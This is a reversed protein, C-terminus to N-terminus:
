VLMVCKVQEHSYRPDPKTLREEHTLYKSYTSEYVMDVLSSTDYEMHAVPLDQPLKSLQEILEKVTM